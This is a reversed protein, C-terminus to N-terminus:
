RKVVRFTITSNLADVIRQKITLEDTDTYKLGRTYIEEYIHLFPKEDMDIVGEKNISCILEELLKGWSVVDGDGLYNIGNGVLLSAM